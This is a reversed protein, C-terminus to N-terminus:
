DRRTKQMFFYLYQGIYHQLNQSLEGEHRNHRYERMLTLACDELQQKLRRIHTDKIEQFRFERSQRDLSRVALDFEELRIFFIANARNHFEIQIQENDSQM